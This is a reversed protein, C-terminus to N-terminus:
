QALQPYCRKGVPFESDVIANGKEFHYHDQMPAASGAGHHAKHKYAEGMKCHDGALMGMHNYNTYARTKVRKKGAASVGDAEDPLHCEAGMRRNSHFPEGKDVRECRQSFYGHPGAFLEAQGWQDVPLCPRTTSRNNVQAEIIERQRIREKLSGNGGCPNGHIITEAIRRFNDEQKQEIMCRKSPDDSALLEERHMRPSQEHPSRRTMYKNLQLQIRQSVEQDWKGWTNQRKQEKEMDQAQIIQAVEVRVSDNSAIDKMMEQFKNERLQQSRLARERVKAEDKERLAIVKEHKIAHEKQKQMKQFEAKNDWRRNEDSVGQRRASTASTYRATLSGSPQAQENISHGSGDRSM